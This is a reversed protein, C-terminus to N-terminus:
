QNGVKRVAASREASSLEDDWDRRVLPQRKDKPYDKRLPHGVFEDYMYIRRLDPHAEFEIGYMDFTERELWSMGVWVSSLSSIKPAAESISVKLRITERSTLSRVQYCVEFRFEADPDRDLNDICTCFVPMNFAKEDRLWTAVELLSETKVTAVQDEYSEQTSLVADPFKESLEILTSSM